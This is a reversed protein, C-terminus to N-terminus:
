KRWFVPLVTMLVHQLPLPLTIVTSKKLRVGRWSPTNPSHFYLEVCEKVETSSPPSHDTERGPRKVGLSLAVPLWQVSLQTPGLAPRPTTTLRFNRAGVPVRVESWRARLWASCWQAIIIIIITILIVNICVLYMKDNLLCHVSISYSSVLSHFM